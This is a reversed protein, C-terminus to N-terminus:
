FQYDLGMGSSFGLFSHHRVLADIRLKRVSYGFGASLQKDQVSYGIRCAVKESPRYEMGNILNFQYADALMEVNWSFISSPNWTIGGAVSAPFQAPMKRHSLAQQLDCVQIGALIQSSLLVTCGISTRVHQAAQAIVNEIRSSTYELSIGTLFKSGAQIGLAVPIRITRFGQFGEQMLGISVGSGRTMRSSFGISVDNWEGIRYHNLQTCSIHKGESLVLASPNGTIAGPDSPNVGTLCM